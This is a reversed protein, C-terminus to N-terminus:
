ELPNKITNKHTNSLRTLSSLIESPDVNEKWRNKENCNKQFNTKQIQDIKREYEVRIEIVNM